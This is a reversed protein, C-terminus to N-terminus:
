LVSLKNQHIDFVVYASGTATNKNIQVHIQNSDWWVVFHLTDGLHSEKQYIVKLNVVQLRESTLDCGYRKFFGDSIAEDVSNAAMFVYWSANLHNNPDVQHSQVSSTTTYRYEGPPAITVTILPTNVNDGMIDKLETLNIPKRLAPDFLISRTRSKAFIRGSSKETLIAENEYSTNGVGTISHQLCDCPLQKHTRMYDYFAPDCEWVMVKSMPSGHPYLKHCVHDVNIKTYTNIVLFLQHIAM